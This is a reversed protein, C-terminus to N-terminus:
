CDACLEGKLAELGEKIIAPVFLLAALPDAWSWHFALNLVLGLLTSGALWACTVSQFAEGKLAKSELSAAAKYKAQALLPMVILAVITLMIGFLSEKAPQAFGSLKGVADLVVFAALCMLLVGVAKAARREIQEINEQKYQESWFRWAVIAASATEIVSDLGFGLLAVSCAAFGLYLAAAGELLNWGITILALRKAQEVYLRRNSSPTATTSCSCNHCDM